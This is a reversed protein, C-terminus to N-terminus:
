NRNVPPQHFLQRFQEANQQKFKTQDEFSLKFFAERNEVKMPGAEGMKKFPNATPNMSAFYDKDKTLADFIDADSRGRYQRDKLAEGFEKMVGERVLAHVFKREGAVASFREELEAREAAERAEQARREDAAKYEAIQRKLEEADASSKELKALAEKAEALEGTTRELEEKHKSIARGVDASNIDLIQDIQEKTAGEFIKSIDERKM